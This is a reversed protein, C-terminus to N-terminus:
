VDQYKFYDLKSDAGCGKVCSSADGCDGRNNYLYGVMMIIARRIDYPVDDADDGYGAVWIVQFGNYDRIDSPTQANDNFIFRPRVDDDYNDLYYNLAAYVSANNNSDFTNVETIPQQAPGFELEFTTNSSGISTSPGKRTGSWWVDNYTTSVRDLYTTIEQTIFKRGTYREAFQRAAPILEQLYADEATNTIRLSDKVQQLTVPETAPKSTVKSRM